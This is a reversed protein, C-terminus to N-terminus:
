APKRAHVLYNVELDESLHYDRTLPHYTIGGMHELTLGADRLWHALESPRIFRAYDHTGKPLIRLLYEAGFIALAYAKATRNLTSFFLDAGPAALEACAAILSAPDPVHELLEMCTVVPFAGPEQKAMEEASALRYDIELGSEHRHMRAVDLTYEARDIATVVAGKSALGEALIGGGCGIDIVPRNNLETHGEIFALRLPNIEHLPKFEGNPDWWQHAIDDFKAIESPDVNGTPATHQEASM